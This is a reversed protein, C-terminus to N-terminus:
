KVKLYPFTFTIQVKLPSTGGNSSSADCTPLQQLIKLTEELLMKFPYRTGDDKNERAM